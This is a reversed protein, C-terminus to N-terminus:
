GAVRLGTAVPGRPVVQGSLPLDDRYGTQGAFLALALLIGGLLILLSRYPDRIGSPKHETLTSM